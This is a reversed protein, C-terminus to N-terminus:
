KLLVIKGSHYRSGNSYISYYYVGNSFTSIDISSTENFFILKQNLLERLNSDFLSISYDNASRFNNIEITLQGTTPNPSISVFHQQFIESELNYLTPPLTGCLSFINLNNTNKPYYLFLKSGSNTSIIPRQDQSGNLCGFCYPTLASDLKFLQTGDTRMIYFPHFGNGFASYAYEINTSDCDFLTRSLYMVEMNASFPLYPEPVSINLMFPTFDLNYLNFSNTLTDQIYYKTESSSIQVPYFDYGISNWPQIITDRTIQAETKLIHIILAICFLLLKKM